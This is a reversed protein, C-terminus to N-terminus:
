LFQEVATAPSTKLFLGPSATHAALSGSSGCSASFASRFALTTRSNCARASTQKSRWSHPLQHSLINIGWYHPLLLASLGGWLVSWWVLLRVPFGKAAMQIQVLQTLLFLPSPLCLCCIQVNFTGGAGRPFFFFGCPVESVFQELTFDHLLSLQWLCDSISKISFFQQM